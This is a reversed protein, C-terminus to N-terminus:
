KLIETVLMLDPATALQKIEKVRQMEEAIAALEKLRFDEFYMMEREMSEGKMRMARHKAELEKLFIKKQQLDVAAQKRENALEELLLENKKELFENRDLIQKLKRPSSVAQMNFEIVRSKIFLQDDLFQLQEVIKSIKLLLTQVRFTVDGRRGEDEQCKRLASIEKQLGMYDGIKKLHNKILDDRM